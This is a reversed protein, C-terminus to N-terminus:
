WACTSLWDAHFVGQGEVPVTAYGFASSGAGTTRDDEDLRFIDIIVAKIAMFEVVDRIQPDPANVLVAPDRFRRTTM